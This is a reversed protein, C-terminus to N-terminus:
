SVKWSEELFLKLPYEADGAMKVSFHFVLAKGGSAQAFGPPNTAVIVESTLV